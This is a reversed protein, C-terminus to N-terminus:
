STRVCGTVTSVARWSTPSGTHGHSGPRMSSTSRSSTSSSLLRADTAASAAEIAGAAGREHPRDDRAQEQLFPDIAAWIADILEEVPEDKWAGFVVPLFRAAGREAHRRRALEGLQQAVGARLLSSKGVGSQAYFITLRAARLNGIITQCEGDRGFFWEADAETYYSLGIYPQARVPGHSAIRRRGHRAAPPRALPRADLARAYEM